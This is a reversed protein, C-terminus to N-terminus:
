CFNFAAVPLRENLVDVSVALINLPIEHAVSIIGDRPGAIRRHAPELKNANSFYVVTSPVRDPSKRSYALSPGFFGSFEHLLSQSTGFYVKWKKRRKGWKRLRKPSAIPSARM